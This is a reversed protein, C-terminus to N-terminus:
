NRGIAWCRLPQQNQLQNLLCKFAKLNVIWRKNLSAQKHSHRQTIRQPNFSLIKLWAKTSIPLQSTWRLTIAETSYSQAYASTLFPQYSSAAPTMQQIFALSLGQILERLPQAEEDMVERVLTNQVMMSEANHTDTASMHTAGIAALLYKDGALHTFSLLQHDLSPTIGDESGVLILTPITVQKLSDGFLNNGMMPNLAIAQAVRRDRLGVREYPLNAAACQFWDALSRRLPNLDQCFSRLRKLDLVGGALAMATYGGFSHGIVSVQVTNFKGQWSGPLQNIEDLEDLIYTIDQPREIFESPSFLDQFNLATSMRELSELNSGPHELAVVSLGHSALHYALYELSFRDNGFGPSIIVLPGSVNLSYYVNAPILRNRKVDQFGWSHKVVKATGLNAPDFSLLSDRDTNSWLDRELLTGLFQNQLHSSNLQVAIDLLAPLDVTVSDEPFARLLGLASFNNTEQVARTFAVELEPVSSTPLAALLQVILREGDPYRFLEELFKHAIQPNVQLSTSLLQRVQPTLLLKYPKFRSSIKGTKVFEELEAVKVTQQFPGAQLKLNKAALVPLTTPSGFFLVLWSFFFGGWLNPWGIARFPNKGPLFKFKYKKM